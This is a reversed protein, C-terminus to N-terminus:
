VSIAIEDSVYKPAFFKTILYIVLLPFLNVYLFEAPLNMGVTFEATVPKFIMELRNGEYLWKLSTGTSFEYKYGAICFGVLQMIQLAITARTYKNTRLLSYASVGIGIFLILFIAGIVWVFPYEAFPYKDLLLAYEVVSYVGYLCSFALYFVIVKRWNDM